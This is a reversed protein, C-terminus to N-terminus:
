GRPRPPITMGDDLLAKLIPAADPRLRWLTNHNVDTKREILDPFEKKLSGLSASLERNAAEWVGTGFRFFKLARIQAQSLRRNCIEERGDSSM